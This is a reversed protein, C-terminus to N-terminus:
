KQFGYYLRFIQLAIYISCNTKYLNNSDYRHAIKNRIEYGYHDTLFYKLTFYFDDDITELLKDRYANEENDNFIDSLGIFDRRGNKKYINMKLNKFYYRLSEELEEIINYISNNFNQNLLHEFLKTMEDVRDNGILKNNCFIEKLFESANEDMIFNKYFPTVVMDFTLNVVFSIFTKAEISFTQEKSLDNYNIINGEKDLFYNQMHMSILGKSNVINRKINSKTIPTLQFMLKEIKEYNSINSYAKNQNSINEEITSVIENPISINYTKLKKLTEQNAKALNDDIINYDEDKYSGIKDMINRIKQLLIQKTFNDILDINALVFDCYKKSVDKKLDKNKSCVYDYYFQYSDLCLYINALDTKAVLYKEYINNYETSNFIHTVKEKQLIFNVITIYKTIAVNGSIIKNYIITSIEKKYNPFQKFTWKIITLFNYISYSKDDNEINTFFDEIYLKCYEVLESSEKDNSFSIFYHLLVKVLINYDFQLEANITKLEDDTIHFSNEGLNNYKQIIKVFEDKSSEDYVNFFKYIFPDEFIGNKLDGDIRELFKSNM